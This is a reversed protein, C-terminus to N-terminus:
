ICEVYKPSTQLKRVEEDLAFMWIQKLLSRAFMLVLQIAVKDLLSPNVKVDLM